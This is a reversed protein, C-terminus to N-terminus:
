QWQFSFHVAIEEVNTMEGSSNENKEKWGRKVGPLELIVKLLHFKSIAFKIRKWM